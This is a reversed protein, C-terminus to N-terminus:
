LAVCVRVPARPHPPAPPGAAAPSARGLGGRSHPSPWGPRRFLGSTCTSSPRYLLLPLRPRQCYLLPPLPLRSQSRWVPANRATPPGPTSPDVRAAVGHGCVCLSVCWDVVCVCVGRAPRLGAARQPRSGRPRQPALGWATRTQPSRAPRPCRLCLRLCLHAPPGSSATERSNRQAQTTRQSAGRRVLPTGHRRAPPPPAGPAAV